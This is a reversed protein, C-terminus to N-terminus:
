RKKVEIIDLLFSMEARKDIWSLNVLGGYGICKDKFKFSFLINEPSDSKLESWIHNEYYQIQDKKSIPKSQRLVNM